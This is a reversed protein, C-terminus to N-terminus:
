FIVMLLFRLFFWLSIQVAVNLWGDASSHFYSNWHSKLSFTFYQMQLCMFSGYSNCWCIAENSYIRKQDKSPLETGPLHCQVHEFGTRPKYRKALKTLNCKGHLRTNRITKLIRQCSPQFLYFLKLKDKLSKYCWRYFCSGSHWLHWHYKLLPQPTQSPYMAYLLELASGSDSHM